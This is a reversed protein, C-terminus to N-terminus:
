PLVGPNVTQVYRPLDAAQSAIQEVRAGLPAILVVSVLLVISLGSAVALDNGRPASVSAAQANTRYMSAAVRFLYNVELVAASLIVAGAFLYM